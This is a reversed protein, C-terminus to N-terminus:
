RWYSAGSPNGRALPRSGDGATESGSSGRWGGACPLNQANPKINAGLGLRSTSGAINKEEKIDTRRAETLKPPKKKDLIRLHVKSLGYTVLLNKGELYKMSTVPIRLVGFFGNKEDKRGILAWSDIDPVKANQIRLRKLTLEQSVKDGPFFGAVKVSKMMEDMSGTRLKIGGSITFNNMVRSVWDKTALNDCFIICAGQDYTFGSFEPQVGGEELQDVFSILQFKVEKSEERSLKVSPYDCPVIAVRSNSTRAFSTSEETRARKANPVSTEPSSSICNEAVPETKVYSQNTSVLATQPRVTVVHLIGAEIVPGATTQDKVALATPGPSSATVVPRTEVKELVSVFGSISQNMVAVATPGLSQNTDVPQTGTKESVPGHGAISWDKVALATPGLPSVTGVPAPICHNVVPLASSSPVITDMPQTGARGMVKEPAAPSMGESQIAAAMKLKKYKRRQAGSFRLKTPRPTVVVCSSATDENGLLLSVMEKTNEPKVPLNNELSNSKEPIVPLNNMLSNSKEPIVSLNTAVSSPTEKAKDRLPDVSDRKVEGGGALINLLLDVNALDRRMDTDQLTINYLNNM